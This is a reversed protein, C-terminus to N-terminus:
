QRAFALAIEGLQGTHRAEHAGIFLAWQYLNLAGFRPHPHIVQGLALGDASLLAARLDARICQLDKWSAEPDRGTPQASEPAIRPRTRDLFAPIDLMSRISSTEHESELGRARAEELRKTFMSVASREVLCLHELVDAASWRGLGPQTRLKGSPLADVARRLEARGNDLYALLDDIRPHM